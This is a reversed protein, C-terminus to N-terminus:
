VALGHHGALDRQLLHVPPLHDGELADVLPVAVGVGEGGRPRQLAPEAGGPDQDAGVGQQLLLVEGPVLRGAVETGVEAAARAVDLDEVGELRQGPASTTCM